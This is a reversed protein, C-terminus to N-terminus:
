VIIMYSQLYPVATQISPVRWLYENVVSPFQKLSDKSTNKSMPSSLMYGLTEMYTRLNSNHVHTDNKNCLALVIMYKGTYRLNKELM